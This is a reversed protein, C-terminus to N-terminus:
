ATLFKCLSNATINAISSLLFHMFTAFNPMGTFLVVQRNGEILPQLMELHHPFFKCIGCPIPTFKPHSKPLDLPLPPWVVFGKRLPPISTKQFWVNVHIHLQIFTFSQLQLIRYIFKCRQGQLHRTVQFINKVLMTVKVLKQQTSATCQKPINKYLIWRLSFSFHTM